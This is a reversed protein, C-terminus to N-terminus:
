NIGSHTISNCRTSTHRARPRGALSWNTRALAFGPSEQDVGDIHLLGLPDKAAAMIGADSLELALLDM